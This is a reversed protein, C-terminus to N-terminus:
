EAELESKRDKERIKRDALKIGDEFSDIEGEDMKQWVDMVENGEKGLDEVLTAPNEMVASLVGTLKEQYLEQSIKDDELLTMLKAEDVKQLLQSASETSMKKRELALKLASMTTLEKSLMSLEREM